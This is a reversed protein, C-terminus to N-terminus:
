SEALLFDAVERAVLDPATLNAAHAQGELRVTRANPLAEGLVRSAVAVGWEETEPDYAVISFTAAYLDEGPADAPSPTAMGFFLVAGAIIFPIITRSIM